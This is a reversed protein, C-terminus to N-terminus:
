CVGDIMVKIEVLYYVYDDVIIMDSVKKESFCCKVGKFSLM